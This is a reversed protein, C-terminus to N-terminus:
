IRTIVRNCTWPHRTSLAPEAGTYNFPTKQGPHIKTRFFALAIFSRFETVYNQNKKLKNISENRIQYKIGNIYRSSFFYAHISKQFGTLSPYWWSTSDIAVKTGPPTPVPLSLIDFNTKIILKRWSTIICVSLHNIIYMLAISVYHLPWFTGACTSFKMLQSRRVEIIIMFRNLMTNM